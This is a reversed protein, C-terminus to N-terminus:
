NFGLVQVIATYLKVGKLGVIVSAGTMILPGGVFKIAMTIVAMKTGCAIIRPQLGMFM